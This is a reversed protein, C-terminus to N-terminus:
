LRALLSELDRTAIAHANVACRRAIEDYFEDSAAAFHPTVFVNDRALLPDNPDAPENWFVDCAFGGLQNRSESSLAAELADRDIVPGRAINVLLSGPKMFALETEGILGRTHENLPCHLSVVDAEGLLKEFEERPTTSNTGSVSMGFGAECIERLRSGSAGTMGVILLRRGRLEIGPPTGLRADAVYRLAEKLRRVSALMLLVTAEAVANANSGPAYCVPIGAAKFAAVDVVDYGAAPQYVLQPKGPGCADLAAQGCKEMTPILIDAGKLGSVDIDTSPLRPCIRITGRVGKADLARQFRPVLFHWGRGMWVIDLPSEEM